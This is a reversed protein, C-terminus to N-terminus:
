ATVADVGRPRAALINIARGLFAGSFLGFAASFPIAYEAHAAYDPHLALSLGSAFKLSFIGLMLGLPIWSGPVIFHRTAPDYRVQGPWRLARLAAVGLGTGALWALGPLGDLGFAKDVGWAGFVLWLAPLIVLRRARMATDRSQKIGTIAIVLLIIWVYKPIHTLIEIPTPHM